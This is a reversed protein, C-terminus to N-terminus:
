TSNVFCMNSLLIVSRIQVSRHDYHDFHYLILINWPLIVDNMLPRVVSSEFLALKGCSIFFIHKYTSM